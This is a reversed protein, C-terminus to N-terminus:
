NHTIAFPGARGKPRPLSRKRSKTRRGIPNRLWLPLQM